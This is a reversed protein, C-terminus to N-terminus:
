WPPSRFRRWDKDPALMCGLIAALAMALVIASLM